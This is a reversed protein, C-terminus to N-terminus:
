LSKCARALEKATFSFINYNNDGKNLDATQASLFCQIKMIIRTVKAALGFRYASLFVPFSNYDNDSKNPDVTYASSFFQFIM